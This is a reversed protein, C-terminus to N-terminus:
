SEPPLRTVLTVFEEFRFGRVDVRSLDHQDRESQSFERLASEQGFIAIRCASSSLARIFTALDRAFTADCTGEVLDVLLLLPRPLASYSRALRALLQEGTLSADVSLVFPEDINM